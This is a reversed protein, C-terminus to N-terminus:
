PEAESFKIFNHSKPCLILGPRYNLKYVYKASNLMVSGLVYYKFNHNFRKQVMKMYEIEHIASVVGLSLAKYKLDYIFYQSSMQTPTMDVVSLAVLKGDIKHLLHFSGLGAYM